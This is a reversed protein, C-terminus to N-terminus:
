HCCTDTLNEERSAQYTFKIRVEDMRHYFKSPSFKFSLARTDSIIERVNYREQYTSTFTLQGHHPMDYHNIRYLSPSFGM